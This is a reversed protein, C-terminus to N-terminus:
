LFRLGFISPHLKHTFCIAYIKGNTCQYVSIIRLYLRVLSEHSTRISISFPSFSFFWYMNVFANYIRLTTFCLCINKNSIIKRFYERKKRQQKGKKKTISNKKTEFANLIFSGCLTLEISVMRDTQSRTNIMLTWFLHFQEILKFISFFSSSSRAYFTPSSEEMGNEVPFM